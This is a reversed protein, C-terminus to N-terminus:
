RRQLTQLFSFSGEQMRGVAAETIPGLPRDDKYLANFGAYADAQLIQRLERSPASAAAIAHSSICRRRHTPAVSPVIMASMPGFARRSRRAKPWYHFLRITVM